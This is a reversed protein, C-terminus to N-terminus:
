KDSLMAVFDLSGGKGLDLWSEVTWTESWVRSYVGRIGGM